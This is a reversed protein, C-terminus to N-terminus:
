EYCIKGIGNATRRAMLIITFPIWVYVAFMMNHLACSAMALLILIFEANLHVCRKLRVFVMLCFVYFIAGWNYIFNLFDNRM